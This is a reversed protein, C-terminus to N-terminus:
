SRGGAGLPWQTGGGEAGVERARQNACSSVQMMEDEIEVEVEHLEARPRQQQQEITQSLRVQVQPM